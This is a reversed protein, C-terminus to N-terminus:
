DGAFDVVSEVNKVWIFIIRLRKRIEMEYPKLYPDRDLLDNIRPVEIEAPDM